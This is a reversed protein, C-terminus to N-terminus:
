HISPSTVRPSRYVVIVGAAVQRLGNARAVLRAAYRRISERLEDGSKNLCGSCVVMDVVPHHENDTVRGGMAGRGGCLCCRDAGHRPTDDVVIITQVQDDVM